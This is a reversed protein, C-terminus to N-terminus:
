RLWGPPVGKRRAEDVIEQRKSRAEALDREDLQRQILNSPDESFGPAHLRAELEAIRKTSRRWGAGSMEFRLSPSRRSFWVAM